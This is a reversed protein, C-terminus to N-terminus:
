RDFTVIKSECVETRIGIKRAAAALPASALHVGRDSDSESKGHIMELVRSLWKSLPFPLARRADGATKARRAFGM